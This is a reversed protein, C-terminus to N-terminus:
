LFYLTEDRQPPRSRPGSTAGAPRFMDAFDEDDGFAEELESELAEPDEGSELRELLERMPGAPEVGATDTMKRMLRALTRPDEEDAMGELEGAMSAFAEEMKAEDVGPFLEERQEDSGQGAGGRLTAFRAPRRELGPRGCRPCDPRASTDVRPSFFNYLRHCDPCYFEYIPM